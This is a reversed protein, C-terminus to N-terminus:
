ISKLATKVINITFFFASVVIPSVGLAAAWLDNQIGIIQKYLDFTSSFLTWLLNGFANLMDWM